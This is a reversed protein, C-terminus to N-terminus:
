KQFDKRDKQFNKKAKQSMGIFKSSKCGVKEEVWKHFEGKEEETRFPNYKELKEQLVPNFM